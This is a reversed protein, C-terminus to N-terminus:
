EGTPLRYSVYRNEFMERDLNFGLLPLDNVLKRFFVKLIQETIAGDKEMKHYISGMDVLMYDYYFCYAM